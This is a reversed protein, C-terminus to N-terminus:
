FNCYMEKKGLYIYIIELQTRRCAERISVETDLLKVYIYDVKTYSLKLESLNKLLPIFSYSDSPLPLSDQLSLRELDPYMAVINALLGTSNEGLSCYQLMLERLYGHNRFLFEMIDAM